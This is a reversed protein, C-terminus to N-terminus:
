VEVQVEPCILVDEGGGGRTKGALLVCRRYRATWSCEVKELGILTEGQGSRHDGLLLKLM